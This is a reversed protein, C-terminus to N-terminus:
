YGIRRLAQSFAYVNPWRDKSVPAAAKHLLADLEPTLGSEQCDAADTIYKGTLLHYFLAGLQYIDTAQGPIPIGRLQEPAQFRQPGEGLQVSRAAL